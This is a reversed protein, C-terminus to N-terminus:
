QPKERELFAKVAEKRLLALFKETTQELERREQGSHSMDEPLADPIKTRHQHEARMM